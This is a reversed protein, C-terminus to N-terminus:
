LNLEIDAKRSWMSLEKSIGCLNTNILIEVQGQSKGGVSEEILGCM